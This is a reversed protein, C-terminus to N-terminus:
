STWAVALTTPRKWSPGAFATSPVSNRNPSSIFSARYGGRRAIRGETSRRSYSPWGSTIRHKAGAGKRPVFIPM